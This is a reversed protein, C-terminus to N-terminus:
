SVFDFAADLNVYVYLIKKTFWKWKHSVIISIHQQQQQQQQITTNNNFQQQQQSSIVLIELKQYGSSISEWCNSLATVTVISQFHSTRHQYVNTYLTDAEDQSVYHQFLLILPQLLVLTCCYLIHLVTYM